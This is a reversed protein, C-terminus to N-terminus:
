ENVNEDTQTEMKMPQVECRDLRNYDLARTHMQIFHTNVTSM